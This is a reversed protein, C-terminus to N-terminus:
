NLTRLVLHACCGSSAGDPVCVVRVAVPVPTTPRQHILILQREGTRVKGNGALWGTLELRYNAAKDPLIQMGNSSKSWGFLWKFTQYLNSNVWSSYVFCVQFHGLCFPSVRGSLQGDWMWLSAWRRLMYWKTETIKYVNKLNLSTTEDLHSRYNNNSELQSVNIIIILGISQIILVIAGVPRKALNAREFWNLRFM